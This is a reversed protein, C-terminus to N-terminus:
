LRFIWFPTRAVKVQPRYAKGEAQLQDSALLWPVCSRLKHNLNRSSSRGKGFSGVVVRSDCLNVVRANGRGSNARDKLEQKLMEMELINIHDARDFKIAQSAVWCHKQLADVLPTPARCMSSPPEIGHKVWDLKVHEGKVEAFRFLTKAFSPSTIASSRGGGKSSADTASIQVSVPKRINTHAFPLLLAACAIEDRVFHPLRSIGKECM